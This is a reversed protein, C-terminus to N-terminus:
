GERDRRRPFAHGEAGLPAPPRAGSPLGRARSSPDEPPGRVKRPAGRAHAGRGGEGDGAPDARLRHSRDHKRRICHLCILIGTGNGRSKQTIIGRGTRSTTGGSVVPCGTLGRTSAETRSHSYVWMPISGVPNSGKERLRSHALDLLRVGAALFVKSPTGADEQEPEEARM